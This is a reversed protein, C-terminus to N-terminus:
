DNNTRTVSDLLSFFTSPMRVNAKCEGHILADDRAGFISQHSPDEAMLSMAVCSRYFRSVYPGVWMLPRCLGRWVFAKTRRLQSRPGTVSPVLGGILVCQESWSARSNCTNESIRATAVISIVAVAKMQVM